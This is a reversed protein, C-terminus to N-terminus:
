NRTLSLLVLLWPGMMLSQLDNMQAAIACSRRLDSCVFGLSCCLMKINLKYILRIISNAERSLNMSLCISFSKREIFLM